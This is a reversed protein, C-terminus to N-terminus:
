PSISALFRPGRIKHRKLMEFLTSRAVGLLKAAKGRNGHTLKLVKLILIREMERLSLVPGGLELAPNNSVNEQTLLFEFSDESILSTM